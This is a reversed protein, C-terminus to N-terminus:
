SRAPSTRRRRSWASRIPSTSRCTGRRCTSSCCARLADFYGGPTVTSVTTSGLGSKTLTDGGVGAMAYSAALNVTPRTADKTLDLNIESSTITMRAEQLDTRQGIAKTIASSIDPNVQTFDPKETPNITAKFADDDTGGVILAKLVLEKTQWDSISQQLATDRAAAASKASLVDLPALTGIDVKVNNDDVLKNAQALGERNIEISEIASRLDWYADRVSAITNEISTRLAVDSIQRAIEQTKIATRTTDTRWGQMLPQNFSFSLNASYSPNLTTFSNDTFTRGNQFAVSGSAGHFNLQQSLTANYTQHATTTLAGGDLQSTSQSSADNYGFQTTLTPQYFARTSQLAYDNIQPNLKQVQINLNRELARQIAQDMTMNLLPQGVDPPKAQGVVYQDPSATPTQVAPAATAPGQAAAPAAVGLAMVLAGTWVTRNLIRTMM